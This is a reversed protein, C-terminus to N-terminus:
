QVDRFLYRYQDNKGSLAPWLYANAPTQVYYQPEIFNELVNKYGIGDYNKRSPDVLSAPAYWFPYYSSAPPIMRPGAAHFMMMRPTVNSVMSPCIKGIFSEGDYIFEDGIKHRFHCPYREENGRFGIVTAKVQFM